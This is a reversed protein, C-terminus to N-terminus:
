TTYSSNTIVYDTSLDCGWVKSKYKGCGILVSISVKKSNRINESLQGLNQNKEKGNKYLILNQISISIDERKIHSINNDLKTKGIAMVIRGWNPDAGNIACKVLPSNIISKALKKSDSQSYGSSVEVELLKTAGEAELAIKHTIKLLAATLLNEFEMDDTTNAEEGTSCIIAMDSTSTDSDISLCNLTLNCASKFIQNLDKNNCSYNTYIFVLMTAMDPEIMGAGKAYAAVWISGKRVTVKKATRDTTLISEAVEDIGDKHLGKILEPIKMLISKAPLPTGIVGTCAVCIDQSNIGLQDAIASRIQKINVRCSYIM